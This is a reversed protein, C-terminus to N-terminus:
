EGATGTARTPQQKSKAYPALPIRLLHEMGGRDVWIMFGHIPADRGVIRWSLSGPEAHMYGMRETLGRTAESERMFAFVFDPDFRLMSLAIAFRALLSTSGNASLGTGHSRLWFDGHYIVTGSMERAAPGSGYRSGTLDM